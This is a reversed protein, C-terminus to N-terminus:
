KVKGSLYQALLQRNDKIEWHAVFKLMCYKDFFESLLNDVTDDQVANIKIGCFIYTEAVYDNKNSDALEIMSRIDDQCVFKNIEKLINMKYEDFVYYISPTIKNLERAVYNDLHIFNGNKFQKTKIFSTKLGIIRPMEIGCKQMKGRVEEMRRISSSIDKNIPNVPRFRNIEVYVIEEGNIELECESWSEEANWCSRDFVFTKIKSQVGTRSVTVRPLDELDCLLHSPICCEDAQEKNKFVVMGHANPMDKLYSKIRCTMRDKHVYYKINDGLPVFKTTSKEYSRTRSRWFDFPEKAQPLAYSHLNANRLAIGIQGMNLRNAMVARDFVSEYSEIQEVAIKGLESKVLDFKNKIAEKVKDTMSLNERATDFELEGLQFRLYGDCHFEDLEYPIKYAINGMLAHMEGYSPSLGFNNSKFMYKRRQEECRAAVHKNNINPLTGEWFRFVHEAETEFNDVRGKVSLSVELGNPESTSAEALLAVVPKRNEDRFCTYTSKTGNYYSVVTFSDTLSYPSLSGIGFCGIVENSNRKTSIGIGAFITRVEHESLGTGFDRVAFWPELMTPLHVNFPVDQTGAVVHSDHANCALERIVAREKYTYVKDAFMDVIFAVDGISFDSTQFNGHVAVDQPATAIKM